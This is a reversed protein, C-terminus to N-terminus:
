IRSVSVPNTSIEREIIDTCPVHLSSVFMIRAKGERAYNNNSPSLMIFIVTIHFYQIGQMLQITKFASVNGRAHQQYLFTASWTQWLSSTRVTMCTVSTEYSLIAQDISGFVTGILLDSGLRGM